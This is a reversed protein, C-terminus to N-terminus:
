RDSRLAYPSESGCRWKGIAQVLANSGATANRARVKKARLQADYTGNAEIRIDPGERNQEDTFNVIAAFTLVTLEIRDPFGAFSILDAATDAQTVYGRTTQYGQFTDTLIASPLNGEAAHPQHLLPPVPPGDPATRESFYGAYHEM